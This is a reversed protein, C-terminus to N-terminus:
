FKWKSYEAHTGIRKIIVIKRIFNIKLDLRYKNGKINIVVRDNPLFSASSYRDKVHQPTKWDADSTESYWSELQDKIETHKKIFEVLKKKGLILM